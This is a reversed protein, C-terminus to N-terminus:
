SPLGLLQEPRDVAFDPRTALLVDPPTLGWTVACVAVGAARATAVDVPSDGVLLTQERPVGVQEVLAHVIAPDPKHTPLSDGGLVAVFEHAFGLGEGIAVALARPKNTAISLAVGAARLRALADRIGPYPVTTDLLHAGYHELYLALARDVFADDTPGGGAAVARAVLRRV